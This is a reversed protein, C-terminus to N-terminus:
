TNSKEWITNFQSKYHNTVAISKIKLTIIEDAWETILIEDGCIISSVNFDQNDYFRTKTLEDNIKKIQKKLDKSYLQKLHIKQQLRSKHFPFIRAGLLKIARQPMGFVLLEQQKNLLDFLADIFPSIGKITLIDSTNESLKKLINLQPIIQKIKEEKEKLLTLLINPSAAEYFMINDQKIYSVLGKDTLKKLTDYVNTRHLKTKESINTVTTFGIELLSLYIKSENNTLGFDVLVDENLM